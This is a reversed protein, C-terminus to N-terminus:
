AAPYMSSFESSKDTTGLHVVVVNQLDVEPHHAANKAFEMVDRLTEKDHWTTMVFEKEPIDDHKHDELNAHDVSDDWSSCDPGWAMMYLCGSRVLWRSIEQQREPSVSDEIVVISKFPRVTSLDPLKETGTIRVYKIM